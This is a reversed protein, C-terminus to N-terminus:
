SGIITVGPKSAPRTFPDPAVEFGDVLELAPTGTTKFKSGAILPTKDSTVAFYRFADAAHIAENEFPEDRYRGKKEDWQRRYHKLMRLGLECKDKDFVCRPLITRMAEHGDGISLKPVIKFNVGYDERAATLRSRGTAWEHAKIDHPAYHDRYEYGYEGSKEKLVNFYHAMGQNNNEYYDIVRFKSGDFQVFWIATADNWGLDWWTDVPYENTYLNSVLRGERKVDQLQTAFYTGELSMEFAEEWTTPYEQRLADWNKAVSLWKLYYYSIQQDNLKFLNQYDRFESPLKSIPQILSIEDIDWTWNYFHAKYQTPQTPENNVAETFMDYFYGEDGEATSEIDVRGFVPVAPITGTLIEKAKQPYKLCIKGFESIHLRQRTSSRASSKVDFSSFSGDGFNFALSRKTDSDVQWLKQLEPEINRWAFDVKDNFIDEASTRDYSILTAGFNRTFLAQDLTDICEWTTFGLQRSKLIINRSHKNNDFHEQAPNKKFRCTGSQKTKIKYLHSLRWDRNLLRKDM